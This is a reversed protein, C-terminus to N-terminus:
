RERREEKMQAGLQPKQKIPDDMKHAARETM